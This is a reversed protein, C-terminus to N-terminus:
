KPSAKLWAVVNLGPIPHPAQVLLTFPQNLKIQRPMNKLATLTISQPKEQQILPLQGIMVLPQEKQWLLLTLPTKNEISVGRAWRTRCHLTLSNLREKKFPPEFYFTDGAVTWKEQRLHLINNSYFSLKKPKQKSKQKDQRYKQLMSEYYVTCDRRNRQSVQKKIYAKLDQDDIDQARSLQHYARVFLRQPLGGVQHWYRILEILPEQTNTKQRTERSIRAAILRRQATFDDKIKKNYRPAAPQKFRNKNLRFGREKQVLLQLRILSQLTSGLLPKQPDTLVRLKKREKNRENAVKPEVPKLKKIEQWKQDAIGEIQTRLQDITVFPADNMEHEILLFLNILWREELSILEHVWGNEHYGRPKPLLESLPWHLLEILYRKKRGHSEEDVRLLADAEKQKRFSDFNRRDRILRPDHTVESPFFVAWGDNLAAKYYLFDWLNLPTELLFLHEKPLLYYDDTNPM